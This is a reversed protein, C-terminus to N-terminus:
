NETQKITDFKFKLGILKSVLFLKTLKSLKPLSYNIIDNELLLIFNIIQGCFHKLFILVVHVEHFFITLM